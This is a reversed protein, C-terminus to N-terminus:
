SRGAAQEDSRVVDSPHDRPRELATRAGEHPARLAAVEGNRRRARGHEVPQLFHPDGDEAYIRACRHCDAVHTTLQLSIAPSTEGDLFAQITGMDFCKGKM